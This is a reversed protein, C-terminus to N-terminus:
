MSTAIKQKRKVYPSKGVKRELEFRMENIGESDFKGQHNDMVKKIIKYNSKGYYESLKLM